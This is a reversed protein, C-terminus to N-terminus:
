MQPKTPVRLTSQAPFLNITISIFILNLLPTVKLLSLLFLIEAKELTRVTLMKLASVTTWGLNTNEEKVKNKEDLFVAGTFNIEANVM